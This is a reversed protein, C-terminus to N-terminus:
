LGKLKESLMHEHLISKGMGLWKGKFVWGLRWDRRNYDM